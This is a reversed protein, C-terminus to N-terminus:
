EYHYDRYLSFEFLVLPLPHTLEVQSEPKQGAQYEICDVVCYLKNSIM